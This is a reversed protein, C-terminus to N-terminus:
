TDATITSAPGDSLEALEDPGLAVKPREGSEDPLIRLLHVRPVPVHLLSQKM